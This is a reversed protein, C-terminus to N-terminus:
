GGTRQQFEANMDKLLNLSEEDTLNLLNSIKEFEFISLKNRLLRSSFTTKKLGLEEALSAMRLGKENAKTKLAHNQEYARTAKQKDQYSVGEKAMFLIQRVRERSLAYKEGIEALTKGELRMIVIDKTRESTLEVDSFEQSIRDLKMNMNQESMTKRKAKQSCDVCVETRAYTEQGCEKCIYKKVLGSDFAHRSNEKATAWELNSVHNNHGNGDLHNVQPKNEPNPIFATAVLRHVTFHKQKKKITRSVSLYKGNRSTNHQKAIAKSGDKYVHYVTGDEFVEFLGGMIIKSKM